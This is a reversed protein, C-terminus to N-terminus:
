SQYSLYKPLVLYAAHCLESTMKTIKTASKWTRYTQKQLGIASLVTGVTGTEM